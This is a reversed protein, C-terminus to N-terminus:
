ELIYILTVFTQSKILLHIIFFSVEELRGQKEGGLTVMHSHYINGGIGRYSDSMVM